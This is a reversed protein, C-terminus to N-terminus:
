DRTKFSYSARIFMNRQPLVASNFNVVPASYDFINNVGVTIDVGFKFGVNVAANCVAYGEHRASYSGGYAVTPVTMGMAPITTYDSYITMFDEYDKPGTYKASVNLGLYVEGIQTGYDAQLTATHPSPFIYQTSEDPADDSQYIYNYNGRLFLGKAVMVKAMVEVGGFQSNKINQYQLISEGADGVRRMVDIKNKFYTHYVTASINFTRNTYEGSLSLYQNRESKLKDNGMIYTAAGVPIKFMMYLEKLTPSRYGMSYNARISFKDIDYKASIKPTVGWGFKDSWDARVGATFSLNINTSIEDQSYLSVSNLTKADGFGNPNLDFKVRENIMEVGSTLRNYKGANWTWLLRPINYSHRQKPTSIGYFDINDRLYSDRMFSLYVKHDANPTHVMEGKVTYGDIAEYDWSEPDPTMPSEDLMSELFDYRRKNMYSGSLRITFKPSIEYEFRQSVNINRWGSVSLGRKDPAVSVTTDYFTGNPILKINVTPPYNSLDPIIRYKTLEKYHRVEDKRGILKYADTSMYSVSTRSKFRGLNVGVSINPNINPMDLHRGEFSEAKDNNQYNTAYQMSASVEVKQQPTKTIINVVAGMANSGYLVSSAGRVIEIREIDDVNIRSYDVNGYTEGAMREGDILFLIYRADLGQFSLSTGYGAQHFQVGAIEGELAQQITTVGRRKLDKATIVRTIVPADKLMLPTRTATVVVANVDYTNLSLSDKDMPEAFGVFGCSMGMLTM